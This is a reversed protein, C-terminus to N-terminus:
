DILVSAADFKVASGIRDATLLTWIMCSINVQPTLNSVLDETSIGAPKSVVVFGAVCVCVCVCVCM